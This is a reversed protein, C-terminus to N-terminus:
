LYVGMVALSVFRFYLAKRTYEELLAPEKKYKELYEPPIMNEAEMAELAKVPDKFLFDAVKMEDLAGKLGNLIEEEPLKGLEAIDEANEDKLAAILKITEPDEGAAEILARIDVADQETLKTVPGENAKTQDQTAEEAAGEKTVGFQATQKSLLILTSERHNRYILSQSHVLRKRIFLNHALYFCM